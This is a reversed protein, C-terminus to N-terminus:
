FRFNLLWSISGGFGLALLGLTLSPEPVKVDTVETQANSVVLASSEVVDGVDVVGLGIEVTGAAFKRSFNDSIERQYNTTASAMLTNFTGAIPIVEGNIVVFAYDDFDFGDQDTFTQDNTLFTFDFNLTTPETFTFTQMLGSGEFAQIFNDPDPDLSSPPIVGLDMELTISDIAPNNSFNFLSDNGLDFDDNDLANTSLSTGGMSNTIVDGFVSWDNFNIDAAAIPSVWMFGFLSILSATLHVHNQSLM